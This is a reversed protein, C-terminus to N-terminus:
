FLSNFLVRVTDMLASLYSLFALRAEVLSRRQMGLIKIRSSLLSVRCSLAKQVEVDTVEKGDAEVSLLSTVVQERIQEAAKDVDTIRKELAAIENEFAAVFVKLDTVEQQSAVTFSRDPVSPLSVLTKTEKKEEESHQVISSHFVNLFDSFYLYRCFLFFFSLLLFFIKTSGSRYHVSSRYDLCVREERKQLSLYKNVHPCLM